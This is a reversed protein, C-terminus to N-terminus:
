DEKVNYYVLKAEWKGLRIRDARNDKDDKPILNNIMNAFQKM